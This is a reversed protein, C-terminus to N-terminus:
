GGSRGVVVEGDERVAVEDGQAVTELFEDGLRDVVVIHRGAWLDAVILGGAALSDIPRSFLVARPANGMKVLRQWVAGGSTSGTSGPVCVIKDALDIGYLDANGADACIAQASPTHISEFFSAYTNFGGHSVAAVGAVDGPVIPRGHFTRSM